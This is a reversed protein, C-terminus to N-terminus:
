NIKILENNDIQQIFGHKPLINLPNNFDVIMGQHLIIIRDNKGVTILRHAITLYPKQKFITRAIYILQCQDASFNSDSESVLQHIEAANNS